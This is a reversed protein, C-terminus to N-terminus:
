ANYHLSVDVIGLNRRVGDLHRLELVKALKKCNSMNAKSIETILRLRCGRNRLDTYAKVVFENNIM